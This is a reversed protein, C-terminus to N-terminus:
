YIICILFNAFWQKNGLSLTFTNTQVLLVKTVSVFCNGFTSGNHGSVHIHQSGSM